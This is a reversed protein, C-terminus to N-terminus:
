RALTYIYILFVLGPITKVDKLLMIPKGVISVMISSSVHDHIIIINLSSVHVVNAWVWKSRQLKSFALLMWTMVAQTPFLSIRGIWFRGEALKLIYHAVFIKDM